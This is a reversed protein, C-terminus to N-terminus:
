SPVRWVLLPPLVYAQIAYTKGGRQQDFPNPQHLLKREKLADGWGIAARMFSDACPNATYDGRMESPCLRGSRCRSCRDLFIEGAEGRCAAM